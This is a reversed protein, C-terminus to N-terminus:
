HFLMVNFLRVEEEGKDGTGRSPFFLSGPGLNLSVFEYLVRKKKELTLSISKEKNILHKYLLCFLVHDSPSISNRKKHELRYRIRDSRKRTLYRTSCEFLIEM